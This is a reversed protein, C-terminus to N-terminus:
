ASARPAAKPGFRRLTRRLDLTEFLPPLPRHFWREDTDGARVPDRGDAGARQFLPRPARYYWEAGTLMPGPRASGGHLADTKAQILRGAFLLIAPAGVLMFLTTFVVLM